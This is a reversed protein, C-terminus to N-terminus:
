FSASYNRFIWIVLARSLPVALLKKQLAPFPMGKRGQRTKADSLEEDNVGRYREESNPYLTWGEWPRYNRM